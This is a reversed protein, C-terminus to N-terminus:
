DTEGILYIMLVSTIINLLNQVIGTIGWGTFFGGALVSSLLGFAGSLINIWCFFNVIGRIFEVKALLGIGILMGIAGVIVGIYGFFGFQEGIANDTHRTMMIVGRAIDALGAVVYYGSILYYAPWVWKAPGYAAARNNSKPDIKPRVVSKLDSQCFQCVQAWDPLSNACKPCTIM